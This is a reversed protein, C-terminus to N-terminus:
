EKFSADTDAFDVVFDLARDNSSSMWIDYEVRNDPKQLKFDVM